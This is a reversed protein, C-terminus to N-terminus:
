KKAGPSVLKPMEKAVQQWFATESVLQARFEEPRSSVALGALGCRARASQIKM